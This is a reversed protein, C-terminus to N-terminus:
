TELAMNAILGNFSRLERGKRRMMWRGEREMGEEGERRWHEGGKPANAFTPKM